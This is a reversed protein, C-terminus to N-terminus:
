SDLNYLATYKTQLYLLYDESSLPKGSIKEILEKASYQKGHCHVEDKLWNRILKVDGKRALEAWQPFARKFTNFMQAGYLNGLTYTPFYGIGGMSWHIDQLCGEADHHPTVGLYEHMKQNWLKPIDEVEISGDMLATEIEFRLIIHLGYTVEDSEIRIMHPGVFNVAAYFSDVTELELQTPFRQQLLSFLYESFPYSQGIMTEWFRSQSEHIGLSIAECLPTGYHEAPLGLDYLGHGGEHITASLGFLLNNEEYRTTMRVDGPNIESCFPHKSEDLRHNHPSFGMVELLKKCLAEQEQKGYHKYLFDTKPQPKTQIKRLLATLGSKLDNFLASVEQTTMGPEYLDLLADYPHEKYGLLDAKQRMLTVVKKLHPAFAQFNKEQRAKGWAHIASSTVNTLEKVFDASLKTLQLYDRQWHKVCTAQEKTLDQALLHGTKVNILQSLLAGFEPCTRREHIFGALTELQKSRYNISDEPLLTEQDWGLLSQISSYIAIHKSKEVLQQYAAQSNTM